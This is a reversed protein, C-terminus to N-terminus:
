AIFYALNIRWIVGTTAPGGVTVGQAAAGAKIPPGQYEQVFETGIAAATPFTFSPTNGAPFGACAAVVPTAGGTLAAAAYMAIHIWTLYIFLGAGPTPTSLNVVAAAAGTATLPIVERNVIKQDGLSNRGGPLALGTTTDVIYVARANLAAQRDPLSASM